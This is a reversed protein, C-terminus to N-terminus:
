LLLSFQHEWSGISWLSKPWLDQDSEVNEEKTLIDRGGRFRPQVVENM